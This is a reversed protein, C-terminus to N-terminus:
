NAYSPVFPENENLWFQVPIEWRDEVIGHLLFREFIYEIHERILVKDEESIDDSTVFMDKVYKVVDDSTYMEPIIKTLMYLAAPICNVSHQKVYLVSEGIAVNATYLEDLWKTKEEETFNEREFIKRYFAYTLNIIAIHLSPVCLYHPDAGRMRLIKKDTTKPRYTTTFSYNYMRNAQIYTMNLYRLYEGALKSGNFFGFREFCMVLPKIWYSIFSMYIGLKETKFPVKEDLEHDVHKVNRPLLHWKRLYQQLVYEWLLIFGYAFFPIFSFLAFPICFVGKIVKFDKLSKGKVKNIRRQSAPKVKYKKYPNQMKDSPDESNYYDFHHKM